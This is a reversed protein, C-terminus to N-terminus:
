VNKMDMQKVLSVRQRAHDLVRDVRDLIGRLRHYLSRWDIFDQKLTAHAVEALREAKATPLTSAAVDKAVASKYAEEAQSMAGYAESVQEAFWFSQVALDNLAICTGSMDQSQANSQLWRIIVYIAEITQQQRTTTAM